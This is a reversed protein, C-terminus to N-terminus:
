VWSTRDGFPTGDDYNKSGIRDSEGSLQAPQQPQQDGDDSGSKMKEAAQAAELQAQLAAIEDQIEAKKQADTEQGLEAQKASIQAQLDAVTASSSSSSSSSSTTSSLLTTAATSSITTM